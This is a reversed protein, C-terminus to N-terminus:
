VVNGDWDMEQILGGRAPLGEPGTGSETSVLLNGNPQLKAYNGPQGPIEWEHVVKGSMDILYVARQLLPAFLTFGDATRDADHVTVGRQLYRM